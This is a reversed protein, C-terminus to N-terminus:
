IHKGGHCRRPETSSLPILLSMVNLKNSAKIWLSICVNLTPLGWLLLKPHLTKGLSVVHQSCHSVFKSDGSEFDLVSDM